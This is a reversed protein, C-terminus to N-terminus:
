RLWIVTYGLYVSMWPRDFASKRENVKLMLRMYLFQRLSEMVREVRVMLVDHNIWDFFKELDLKVM